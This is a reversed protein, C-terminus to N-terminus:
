GYVIGGHNSFITVFIISSKCTRIIEQKSEDLVQINKLKYCRSDPEDFCSTLDNEMRAYLDNETEFEVIRVVNNVKAM